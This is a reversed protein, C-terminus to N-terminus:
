RHPYSAFTVLHTLPPRSEDQQGATGGDPLTHCVRLQEILVPQISPHIFFTVLCIFLLLPLLSGNPSPPNSVSISSPILLPGLCAPSFSPNMNSWPSDKPLFGSKRRHAICHWQLDKFLAIVLYISNKFFNALCEVNILALTSILESVVEMTWGLPFLSQLSIRTYKPYGAPQAIKQNLFLPYKHLKIYVAGLRFQRISM